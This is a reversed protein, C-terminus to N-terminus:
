VRVNSHLLTLLTGVRRMLRKATRGHEVMGHLAELTASWMWDLGKTAQIVNPKLRSKRVCAHQVAGPSPARHAEAQTKHWGIGDLETLPLKLRNLARQGFDHSVIFSRFRSRECFSCIGNAIGQSRGGEGSILLDCLEDLSMSYSVARVNSSVM